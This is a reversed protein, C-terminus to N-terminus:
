QPRGSSPAHVRSNGNQRPKSNEPPTTSPNVGPGSQGPTAGSQTTNQDTNPTMQNLSGNGRGTPAVAHVEVKAGDRLREAGDVVVMDGAKLGSGIILNSGETLDVHVPQIKVTNNPQVVFMFDGNTGHQLGAAPAVIANPRNELVLRINVFQNPFMSEDDNPFVAKLKATGTTVDIQNDVTLLKGTAIKHTDTRDYADVSLGGAQRMVNLVSPLQDEPLTFLVAIPRLQTVVLMGNADSAHVINGADVQRLGVRGSVPSALRTYALQVRDSEIAALDSQVTGEFNGANATQTDMQERSFVGQDFLAKYRGAEAQANVLQAKDKALQGEDKGLQAQFPRPDILALLQGQKVEDGERVNVSMLQGDVRSKITVTNYATVTGLGTLYIPVTRQQVPAAQVPTPRDAARAAQAQSAQQKKAASARYFYWGVLLLIVVVATYAASRWGSKGDPPPEIENKYSPPLTTQTEVTAMHVKLFAKVTPRDADCCVSSLSITVDAHFSAPKGCFTEIGPLRNSTEFAASFRDREKVTRFRVIREAIPCAM